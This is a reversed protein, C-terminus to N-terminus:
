CGLVARKKWAKPLGCSAEGSRLSPVHRGGNEQIITRRGGEGAESQGGHRLVCVVVGLLGHVLEELVGLVNLYRLLCSELVDGEKRRFSPFRHLCRNFTLKFNETLPRFEGVTAKRARCM